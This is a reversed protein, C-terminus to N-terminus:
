RVKTHGSAPSTPIGALRRVDSMYRRYPTKPQAPTAPAAPVVLGKRQLRTEAAGFREGAEILDAATIRDKERGVRVRERAVSEWVIPSWHPRDQFAEKLADVYGDLDRFQPAHLPRDELIEESEREDPGIVKDVPKKLIAAVKKATDFSAGGRGRMFETVTPQRLGLARALWTANRQYEHEYLDQMAARLRSNQQPSLHPTTPM